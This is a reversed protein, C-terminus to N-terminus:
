VVKVKRVVHVASEGCCPTLVPPNSILTKPAPRGGNRIFKSGNIAPTSCNKHVTSVNKRACPEVPPVRVSALYSGGRASRWACYQGLTHRACIEHSAPVKVDASTAVRHANCCPRLSHRRVHCLSGQRLLARYQRAAHPDVLSRLRRTHVAGRTVDSGHLACTAAVMRGASESWFQLTPSCPKPHQTDPTPNLISFPPHLATPDFNTRHATM